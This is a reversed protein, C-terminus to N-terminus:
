CGNERNKESGLTLLVLITITVWAVHAIWDGTVAYVSTRSDLPIPGLWMPSVIPEPPLARRVMGNGDVLASHGLTVNRVLPRRNEVARLRAFRLMRDAVVHDRDQGEAGSQVFFDIPEAGQRTDRFHDSFCVDYCISTGFRYVGTPTTTHFVIVGSGPTYLLTDSLTRPSTEAAPVLFRKDYCGQFGEVHDSCAVSNFRQSTRPGQVLRECGIVLTTRLRRATETLIHRARNKDAAPSDAEALDIIKHHYALEPWVLLNAHHPQVASTQQRFATQLREAPLLPPLDIEGMLCVTPGETFALQCLRWQGYGFAFILLATATLPFFLQRYPSLSRFRFLSRAVDLLAGNVLAVLFTLLFEGGLDAVQFLYPYETLVMGLKLWPFEVGTVVGAALHRVLEMAVWLCPMLITFPIRSRLALFRGVALTLAFLVGGYTGIWFWPLLYPGWLNDYRYCDLVWSMGMLHVALGALYAAAYAARPVKSSAMAMGFPILAIWCLGVSRPTTLCICLLIGSFLPFAALVAIRWQGASCIYQGIRSAVM